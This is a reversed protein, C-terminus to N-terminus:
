PAPSAAPSFLGGGASPSVGISPVVDPSPSAETPSPSPSPSPSPL